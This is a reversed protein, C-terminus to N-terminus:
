AISVPYASLAEETLNEYGKQTIVITDELRVGGFNPIYIGPEVTVVMGEVLPCDEPEKRLVPLEHIELGVGHGLGHPFYDGYGQQAIWGRAAEDVERFLTGPKCREFAKLQAERVIQYIKEYKADVEGAWVVRTMDSHYRNLVVGIDILVPEGRRLPISSVHYHPQSTRVGFAIHPDFALRDGGEKLWFLELEVALEEETVGEKLLQVVCNFGRAGLIASRRLLDIEEPEKIERIRKIPNKLGVLKSKLQELQEFAGYTTYGSDFGVRQNNYKWRKGFQSELDYGSTLEVPVPAKQQCAEFYRGDVFFVAENRAIVLRGLSVEQGILYYIDIPNDVIVATLDNAELLSHVKQIRNM